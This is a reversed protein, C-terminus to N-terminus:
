RSSSAAVRAAAVQFSAWEWRLAASRTSPPSGPLDLGRHGLTVRGEQGVVAPDPESRVVVRRVGRLGAAVDPQEPQRYAASWARSESALPRSSRVVVRVLQALLRDRAELLPEAVEAEVRAAVEVEGHVRPLPRLRSAIVKAGSPPGGRRQHEEPLARAREARLLRDAGEEGELLGLAAVHLGRQRDLVHAEHAAEGRGVHRGRGRDVVPDGVQRGGVLGQLPAAEGHEALVRSRSSRRRRGGARRGGRRVALHHRRQPALARHRLQAGPSRSAM